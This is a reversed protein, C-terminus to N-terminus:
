DIYVWVFQDWDGKAEHEICTPDPCTYVVTGVDAHGYVRVVEFWEQDAVDYFANIAEDTTLEDDDVWTFQDDPKLQSARKRTIHAM